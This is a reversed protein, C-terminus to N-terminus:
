KSCISFRCTRDGTSWCDIEKVIFEKGSYTDFIGELFGEDYDCVTFGTVPLGSCDLDESITVILSIKEPDLQEVKLIGISLELLKKHIQAVFLNIPLTTDLYHKCFEVGSLRGAEILIRNTEELGFKQTLVEKMTYQMLRYAEVTTTMGLNPRGVAVDGLQDWSFNYEKM